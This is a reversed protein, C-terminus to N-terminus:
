IYGFRDYKKMMGGALKEQKRVDSYGSCEKFPKGKFRDILFRVAHFGCLSSNEAQEKIRNVKFKLYYKLKHADIIKKIEKMFLESPEEAFSDYYEVSCDDITDVYCALWHSGPQSAKDRNFIFGFKDFQLSPQILESFEDAAVCGIFGKKQYEDLMTIIQDSYLGDKKIRDAIAGGGSQDSDSVDSDDAGPMFDRFPSADVLAEIRGKKSKIKKAEVAAARALAESASAPAGSAAARMGAVTAGVVKWRPVVSPAGVGAGNDVEAGAAAGAAAAAAAGAAAGANGNRALAEREQAAWRAKTRALMEYYAKSGVVYEDDDDAGDALDNITDELNVLREKVEGTERRAAERAGSGENDFNLQRKSEEAKRQRVRRQAVTEQGSNPLTNPGAEILMVDQKKEEKLKKELEQKMKEVRATEKAAKKQEEALKKKEDEQENQMKKVNYNRIDANIKRIQERIVPQMKGYSVVLPTDKWTKRVGKRRRVVAVNARMYTVARELAKKHTTGKAFTIKKGNMRIYFLKKQKDYYVRPPRKKPQFDEVTDGTNM